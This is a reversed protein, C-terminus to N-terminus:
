SIDYATKQKFFFFPCVSNSSATPVASLGTTQSAHTTDKQRKKKKKHQPWWRSRCEKGVRREESRARASNGAVHSLLGTIGVSASTGVAFNWASVRRTPLVGRMAM